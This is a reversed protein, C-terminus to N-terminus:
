VPFLQLPLLLSPLFYALYRFSLYFLVNLYFNFQFVDSVSDHFSHTGPYLMHYPMLVETISLFTPGNDSLWSSLLSTMLFSLVQSILKHLLLKSGLPLYWLIYYCHYYILSPFLTSFGSESITLYHYLNIYLEPVLLSVM